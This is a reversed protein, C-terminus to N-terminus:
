GDQPPGRRRRRHPGMWFLPFFLFVGGFLKPAVFIGLIVFLAAFLVWPAPPARRPRRGPADSEEIPAEDNHTDVLTVASRTFMLISFAIFVVVSLGMVLLLILTPDV